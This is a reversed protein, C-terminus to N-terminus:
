FLEFNGISFTSRLLYLREPHKRAQWLRQVTVGSHADGEIGFGKELPYKSFTHKSSVFVGLVVPWIM